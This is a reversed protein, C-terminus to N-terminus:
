VTDELNANPLMALARLDARTGSFWNLDVRADIGKTQGKGTYQWIAWPWNPPARTPKPGGNYRALWLPFKRLEEPQGLRYDFWYGTFLWPLRGCLEEMREQYHMAWEIIPGDELKDDDPERRDGELDLIPPLFGPGLADNAELTNFQHEAENHADVKPNSRNMNYWTGFHYSGLVPLGAEQASEINEAFRKDVFGKGRSNTGGETSKIIAFSHGAEVVRRWAIKGQYHSVDLGSLRDAHQVRTIIRKEPEPTPTPEDPAPAPAPASSPAEGTDPKTGTIIELPGEDSKAFMRAILDALFIGLSNGVPKECIM